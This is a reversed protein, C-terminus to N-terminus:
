LTMTNMLTKPQMIMVNIGNELLLAVYNSDQRMAPALSEVLTREYPQYKFLTKLWLYYKESIAHTKKYSELEELELAAREKRLALADKPNLKAIRNYFENGYKERTKQKLVNLFNVEAANPGNAIVKAATNKFDITLNLHNNVCLYLIAFDQGVEIVWENISKEPVSIEFAGDKGLVAKYRTGNRSRTIHNFSNDYFQITNDTANKVVGKIKVNQALLIICQLLLVMILIYKKM